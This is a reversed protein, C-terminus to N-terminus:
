LIAPADSGVAAVKVSDADTADDPAALSHDPIAADGSSLTDLLELAAVVVTLAPEVV